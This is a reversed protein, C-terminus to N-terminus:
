FIHRIKYMYKLLCAWINWQTQVDTHIETTTDFLLLRHVYINVCTNFYTNTQACTYAYTCMWKGTWMHWTFHPHVFGYMYFKYFTCQDKFVCRHVILLVQAQTCYCLGPPLNGVNKFKEKTEWSKPTLAIYKTNICYIECQVFKFPYLHYFGAIKLKLWSIKTQHMMNTYEYHNLDFWAIKHIEIINIKIILNIQGYPANYM